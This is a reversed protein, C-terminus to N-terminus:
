AFYIFNLMLGYAELFIGVLAEGSSASQEEICVTGANILCKVNRSSYKRYLKIIERRMDEITMPIPGTELDDLHDLPSGSTKNETEPRERMEMPRRYRPIFVMASLGISCGGYFATAATIRTLLLLALVGVLTIKEM